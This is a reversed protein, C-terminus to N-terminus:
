GKGVRGWRTGEGDEVADKKRANILGNGGGEEERREV